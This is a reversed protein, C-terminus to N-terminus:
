EGTTRNRSRADTAAAAGEVGSSGLYAEIVQPNNQIEEPSGQAIKAGHDLVTIRESVGMVVRMDHEILVVTIRREDRLRHMFETLQASERPNMGATPEDLFLIKPDSALGRGIELRRQDGYALNSALDDGKGRLGVFDLLKKSEEVAWAEERRVAPTRLIAGFLNAHLRSHMGVMVNELATLNAFLRINQYTRSIGMRAITDPALGQIEDGNFFIQGDEPKYFGTICNFLTSKGAGNPGIVSTITMPEIEISFSDVAVLGGFRKTVNRCELLAM